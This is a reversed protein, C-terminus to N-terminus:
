APIRQNSSNGDQMKRLMNWLEPDEGGLRWFAFRSIGLSAGLQMKEKISEADEYWTTDDETEYWLAKTHSDRQVQTRYDPHYQKWTGSEVGRANWRLGYISMAHVLKEPPFAKVARKL